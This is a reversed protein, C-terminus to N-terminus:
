IGMEAMCKKCYDSGVIQHYDCLTKNCNTCKQTALRMCGIRVCTVMQDFNPNNTVLHTYKNINM